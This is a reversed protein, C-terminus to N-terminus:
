MQKVVVDSSVENRHRQVCLMSSQFSRATVTTLSSFSSLENTDNHRLTNVPTKNIFIIIINNCGETYGHITCYCYIPGLFFYYLSPKHSLHFM